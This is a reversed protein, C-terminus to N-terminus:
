TWKLVFGMSAMRDLGSSILVKTAVLFFSVEFFWQDVGKIAQIKNHFGKNNELERGNKQEDGKNLLLCNPNSLYELGRPDAMYM